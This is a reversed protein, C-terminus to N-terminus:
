VADCRFARSLYQPFRRSRERVDEPVVEIPVRWTSKVKLGIVLDFYPDCPGSSITTIAGIYYRPILSLAIVPVSGWSLSFLLFLCLLWANLAEGCTAM